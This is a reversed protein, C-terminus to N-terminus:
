VAASVPHPTEPAAGAREFDAKVHYRQQGCARIHSRPALSQVGPGWQWDAFWNETGVQLHSVQVFKHQQLRLHQLRTLSGLPALGRGTLGRCESVDLFTLATLGELVQLRCAPSRLSVAAEARAGANLAHKDVPEWSFPPPRRLAAGPPQLVARRDSTGAVPGGPAQGYAHAECDAASSWKYQQWSHLGWLRWLRACRGQQLRWLAPMTSQCGHSGSPQHSVQLDQLGHCESLELHQLRAMCGLGPLPQGPPMVMNYCGHMALTHVRTLGAAVYASYVPRMSRMSKRLRQARM